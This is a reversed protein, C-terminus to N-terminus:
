LVPSASGKKDLKYKNKIYFNYYGGKSRAKCLTSWTAVPVDQHVFTKKKSKVILYGFEGECSYYHASIMWSSEEPRITESTKFITNEIKSIAEKESKWGDSIQECNDETANLFLGTFVLAIILTLRKM